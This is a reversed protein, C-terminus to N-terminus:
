SESSFFSTSQQNMTTEANTKTEHKPKTNKTKKQDVLAITPFRFTNMESSGSHRKWKQGAQIPTSPPCNNIFFCVARRTTEV